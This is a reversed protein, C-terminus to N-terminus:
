KPQVNPSVFGFEYNLWALLRDVSTADFHKDAYTSSVSSHIIEQIVGQRRPLSQSSECIAPARFHALDTAAFRLIREVAREAALALVLHALEDSPRRDENAGLADLQAHVNPLSAIVRM